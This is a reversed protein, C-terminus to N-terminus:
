NKILEVWGKFPKSGNGLEVIYFYTSSTLNSLHENEPWRKNAREQDYGKTEFVLNGWRNYISVSNNPFEKINKITFFDNMNDNNASVGSYVEVECLQTAADIVFSQVLTDQRTAGINSTYQIAVTVSYVGPKLTDIKSCDYDPCVSSPSWFYKVDYKKVTSTLALSIFADDEKDICKHHQILPTLTFGGKSINDPQLFGQTIMMQSINGGITQTFPEGVNDTIWIGSNGVPRHDGASNLVQPTITANQGVATLVTLLSLQILFLIKKM